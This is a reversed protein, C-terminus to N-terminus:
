TLLRFRSPSYMRNVDSSVIVANDLCSFVSNTQLYPKQSAFRCISGQMAMRQSHSMTSSLSVILTLYYLATLCRSVTPTRCHSLDFLPPSLSVVCCFHSLSLRPAHLTALVVRISCHSHLTGRHDYRPALGAAPGTTSCGAGGDVSGVLTSTATGHRSSSGAPIRSELNYSNLM